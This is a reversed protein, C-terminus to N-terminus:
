APGNEICKQKMSKFIYLHQLATYFVNSSQSSIGSIIVKCLHISLINREIHIIDDFWEVHVLSLSLSKGNVCTFCIFHTNVDDSAQWFIFSCLYNTEQGDWIFNIFFYVAWSVLDFGSKKLVWSLVGRARLVLIKNHFPLGSWFNYLVRRVILFLLCSLFTAKNVM